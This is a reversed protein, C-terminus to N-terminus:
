LVTCDPLFNSVNQLFKRVRDEPCVQSISEFHLCCMLRFTGGDVLNCLIVVRLVVVNVSHSVWLNAKTSLHSGTDLM